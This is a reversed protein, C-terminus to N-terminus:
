WQEGRPADRQHRGRNAKKRRKKAVFREPCFPDMDISSSTGTTVLEAMCKGSIPGWLIGWCNHGCCVFANTYNPVLGMIPKGDQPCPRMCCNSEVETNNRIIRSSMNRLCKQAAEIRGTDPVVLHPELEVIRSKGCHESGGLGCVYISSDPRPYVELHTNTRHDENCFIAYPRDLTAGVPMKVVMSSSRIGDMPVRFPSHEKFWDEAMVTWPGLAVVLKDCPISTGDELRVGSVRCPRDENGKGDLVTNVGVVNGTVLKTGKSMAVDMMRRTLELPTVQATDTDMLSVKANENQLWDPRKGTGAMDTKNGSSSYAYSLTEIKRYSTLNLTKALEEHLQFGLRHLQETDEDGWGGALFGGAKGSACGAVKYREVVTVRVQEGYNVALFYATSCGIIGGGVVVVDTREQRSM